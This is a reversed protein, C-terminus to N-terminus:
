IIYKALNDLFELLLQEPYVISQLQEILQLQARVLPLLDLLGTTSRLPRQGRESVRERDAGEGWRIKPRFM